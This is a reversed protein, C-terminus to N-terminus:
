SLKLLYNLFIKLLNTKKFLDIEGGRKKKKAFTTRLQVGEPRLSLVCLEFMAPSFLISPRSGIFGLSKTTIDLVSIATILLM